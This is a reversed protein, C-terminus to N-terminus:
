KEKPLEENPESVVIDMCGVNDGAIEYAYAVAEPESDAEVEGQYIMTFTFKAM